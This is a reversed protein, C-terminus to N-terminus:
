LRGSALGAHVGLRRRAMAAHRQGPDLRARLFPACHPAAHRRHARAAGAQARGPGAGRGAPQHRRGGSRDAVAFDDGSFAPGGPGARSRVPAKRAASVRASRALRHKKRNRQPPECRSDRDTGHGVVAHRQSRRPAARRREGARLRADILTAPATAILGLAYAGLGLGILRWRRVATQRPHLHGDREGTGAHVPSRHPRHRPPCAAGAPTAVWALWDAFAVSGFVVQVQDADPADIRLLARALGAAGAQAQVQTRLDTQPAPAAPAARM